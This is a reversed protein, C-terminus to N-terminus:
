ISQGAHAIKKDCAASWQTAIETKPLHVDLLIDTLVAGPHFPCRSPDRKATYTTM